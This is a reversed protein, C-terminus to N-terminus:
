VPHIGAGGQTSDGSPCDRLRIEVRNPDGIYVIQDVFELAIARLEETTAAELVGPRQLLERMGAWNASTVPPPALLELRMAEITAELGPVGQAQLAELQAIQQQKAVDVSPAVAAPAAAVAAVRNAAARLVEFLQDKVKWEALGRGYWRCHLNTCKFRPKGYANGYHMAKNCAQCSTLGSFARIVRPARRSLTRRSDILRKAQQWEQWTILAAVREAENNIVGRLIPNNIWRVLGAPSWDLDHKRIAGKTNFEMPTLLDWLARAATFDEPHTVVQSGDYLYGFPVRGCAYHGQAKRRAIGNRVNIGKIDSDIENVLSLVGTLLKGAPDATDAPTGDLLTVEVNRRACMRLFPVDEGSRSLRSLSMAVVRRVKGAAVLGQLEEWGPRPGSSHASRREAIVRDCGAAKLQQIQEAISMDQEAKDTSVRAYGIIV